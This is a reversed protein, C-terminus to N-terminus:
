YQNLFVFKAAEKKGALRAPKTLSFAKDSPMQKPGATGEEEEGTNSTVQKDSNEENTAKSPPYLTSLPISADTGYGDSEDDSVSEKSSQTRSVGSRSGAITAMKPPTKSRQRTFSTGSDIQKSMATKNTRAKKTPSLGRRKVVVPEEPEEESESEDSNNKEAYTVPTRSRRKGTEPATRKSPRGRRKHVGTQEEAQEDEESESVDSPEATELSARTRKRRRAAGLNDVRRRKKPPHGGRKSVAREEQKEEESEPPPAEAKRKPPRGRRKPAVKEEVESENESIKSTEASSKEKAEPQKLSRRSPRSSEVDVKSSSGARSSKVTENDVSDRTDDARSQSFPNFDKNGIRVVLSLNLVRPPRGRRAQRLPGDPTLNDYPVEAELVPFGGEKKPSRSAANSKPATRDPPPARRKKIASPVLAALGASKDFPSMYESPSNVRDVSKPRGPGRKKAPAETQRDMSRSSGPGRPKPAEVREPTQSKKREDEDDMWRKKPRPKKKREMPVGDIMEPKLFDDPEQVAKEFVLDKALRTKGPLPRNGLEYKPSKDDIHFCFDENGIRAKDDGLSLLQSKSRYARGLWDVFFDIEFDRWPGVLSKTHLVARLAGNLSEDDFKEEQDYGRNRLAAGFAALRCRRADECRSEPTSEVIKLQAKTMNEEKQGAELLPEWTSDNEVWLEAWRWAWGLIRVVLMSCSLLRSADNFNMPADAKGFKKGSRKREVEIVDELRARLNYENGGHEYCCVTCFPLSKSLSSAKWLYALIGLFTGYFQGDAPNEDNHNVEYGAQRACSVHFHYPRNREGRARCEPDYCKTKMGAKLGCLYCPIKGQVYGKGNSM